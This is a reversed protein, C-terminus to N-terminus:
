TLRGLEYGQRNWFSDQFLLGQEYRPERKAEKDRQPGGLDEWRSFPVHYRTVGYFPQTQAQLLFAELSIRYKKKQDTVEVCLFKVKQAKLQRIVPEDVGLSGGYKWLLQHSKCKRFFTNDYIQGIIRIKGKYTVFIPRGKKFSHTSSCGCSKGKM